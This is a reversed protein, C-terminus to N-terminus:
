RSNEIKKFQSTLSLLNEISYKINFEGSEFPNYKGRAIRAIFHIGLDKAGEYDTPADGIFVVESPKLDYEKLIMKLLENKTRPTGWVGKFYKRLRRINVINNIEDHPTGSVIFLTYKEHNAELFEKAGRVYPCTLIKRYCFESFERGLREEEKQTLRSNLYDRYIIRFKEYRSMGGNDLHLKIVKKVIDESYNRFLHAFARTKIDMSETIVGDFDFVLAKITM